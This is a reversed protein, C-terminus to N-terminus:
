NQQQKQQALLSKVSEEYSKMMIVITEQTTRMLNYLTTHDKFLQDLKASSSANDDNDSEENVSQTSQNQDKDNNTSEDEVWGRFSPKCFPNSPCSYFSKGFNDSEENKVNREVVFKDCGTCRGNLLLPIKEKKPPPPEVKRKKNNNNTNNNSKKNSMITVTTHTRTRTRQTKNKKNQYFKIEQFIVSAIPSDEKKKL